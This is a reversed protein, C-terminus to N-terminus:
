RRVGEAPHDTRAPRVRRVLHRLRAPAFRGGHVERRLRDALAWAADATAPDHPGPGYVVATVSDAMGALMPAARILLRDGGATARAATEHATLTAPLVVGAERLYATADLWAGAIRHAPGGRRRRRRQAAKGTANAALLLVVVLLVGAGATGAVRLPSWGPPAPKVSPEATHLPTTAPHTVPQPAPPPPVPTQATATDPLLTGTDTPDVDIWGHGQFYVQDWAYADASTVTWMGRDPSPLRYGVAIRTPLGATRALVAFAVVHQEVDGGRAAPAPAASPDVQLGLMAALAGYSEGPPGAPDYPLARVYEALARMRAYATGSGAVTTGLDAFAAPIGPVARDVVFTASTGPVATALSAGDNPRAGTVTYALGALRTADTVLVGTGPDFGVRAPEVAAGFSIFVPRGIAPLFPGPLGALTVQATFRTGGAPDGALAPGAV